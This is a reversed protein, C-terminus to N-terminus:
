LQNKQLHLSSHIKESHIGERDCLANIIQCQEPTLVTSLHFEKSEKKTQGYFNRQMASGRKIYDSIWEQIALVPSDPNQLEAELKKINFEDMKLESVIILKEKVGAFDFLNHLRTGPKRIIDVEDDDDVPRDAGEGTRLGGQATLFEMLLKQKWDRVSAEKGLEHDPSYRALVCDAILDAAKGSGRLLLVPTGNSTDDRITTVAGLDGQVCISIAPIGAFSLSPGRSKLSMHDWGINQRKMDTLIHEEMSRAPAGSFYPRIVGKQGKIDVVSHPPHNAAVCAHFDARL